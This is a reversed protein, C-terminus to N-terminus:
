TTNLNFLDLKPPKAIAELLVSVSNSAIYNNAHCFEPIKLQIEHHVIINKQPSTHSSFSLLSSLSLYMDLSLYHYIYIM